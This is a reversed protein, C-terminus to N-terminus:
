IGVSAHWTGTIAGFSSLNISANNADTFTVGDPIIQKNSDDSIIVRSLYQVGKAHNVTLVGAVLDGAVFSKIFPKLADIAQQVNAGGYPSPIPVIVPSTASDQYFVRSSSDAYTFQLGATAAPLQTVSADGFIDASGTPAINFPQGIPSFTTRTFAYVNLVGTAAVNFVFCGGGGSAGSGETMFVNLTAGGPVLIISNGATSLNAINFTTNVLRFTEATGTFKFVGTNPGVATFTMAFAIDQVSEFDQFVSTDPAALTVGVKKGLGYLRAAGGGQITTAPISIPEGNRPSIWIDIAGHAFATATEVEAWTQVRNGDTAQSPDYIIAARAQAASASQASILVWNGASHAAVVTTGDPAAISTTNLVWIETTARTVVAAFTGDALPTYPDNDIIATLAAPTAVVYQYATVYGLAGVRGTPQTLALPGSHTATM